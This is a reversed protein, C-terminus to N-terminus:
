TIDEMFKLKNEFVNKKSVFDTDSKLWKKFNKNKLRHKQVSLCSNGIALNWSKKLKKDFRVNQLWKKSFFSVKKRFNKWSTKLFTFDLQTFIFSILRLTALIKSGRRGWFLKEFHFCRRTWWPCIESKKFLVLNKKLFFNVNKDRNSDAESKKWFRSKKWNKLFPWFLPWFTPWKQWKRPEVKKPWFQGMKALNQGFKSGKPLLVLCFSVNEWWFQCKQLNKENKTMKEMKTLKTIKLFCWFKHNTIWIKIHRDM